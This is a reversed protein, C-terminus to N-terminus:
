SPTYKRNFSIGRGANYPGDASSCPYLMSLRLIGRDAPFEGPEAPFAAIIQCKQAQQGLGRISADQFSKLPQDASFLDTGATAEGKLRESRISGIEVRMAMPNDGIASERGISLKDREGRQISRRCHFYEAAHEKQTQVLGFPKRFGEQLIEQGPNVRSKGYIGTRRDIRCFNSRNFRLGAVNCPQSQRHGGELREVAASENHFRRRIRPRACRENLQIRDLPNMADRRMNGIGSFMTLPEVPRIGVASRNAEIRCISFAGAKLCLLLLAM